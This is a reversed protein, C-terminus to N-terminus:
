FAAGRALNLDHGSLYGLGQNWIRAAVRRVDARGPARNECICAVIAPYPRTTKDAERSPSTM